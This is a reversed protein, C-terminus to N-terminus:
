AGLIDDAGAPARFENCRFERVRPIRLWNGPPIGHIVLDGGPQLIDALGDPGVGANGHEGSGANGGGAPNGGEPPLLVAQPALVAGLFQGRGLGEAPIGLKDPFPVVPAPPQDGVRTEVGGVLGQGVQFALGPHDDDGLVHVAVVLLGSARHNVLKVSRDPHQSAGAAPDLAQLLPNGQVQQRM